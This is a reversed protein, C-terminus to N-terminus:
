RNANERALVKLLAVVMAVEVREITRRRLSGNDLHSPLPALKDIPISDYYPWSISGEFVAGEAEHHM